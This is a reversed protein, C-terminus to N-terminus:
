LGRVIRTYSTWIAAGVVAAILYMGMYEWQWPPLILYWPPVLSWLSWFALLAAAGCFAGILPALPPDFIRWRHDGWLALPMVTVLWSGAAVGWVMPLISLFHWGLRFEDDSGVNAWVPAAVVAALCGGLLAFVAAELRDTWHGPRPRDFGDM